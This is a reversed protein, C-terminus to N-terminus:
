QRIALQEGGFLRENGKVVVQMGAELEPGEIGVLLGSYGQVQVPVMKAKGDEEVFVVNQGFKVVLADRPVLLSERRSSSPLLARAEMGEVLKNPNKLRVKVSFTRTAIDGKPVFSLFKGKLKLEGAAVEIQRGEQLYQLVEAPVDVIVDVESDDAVLAVVGGDDVWEGKEANKQIVLADFPARIIKKKKELLLKDLSAKISMARNQLIKTKFYYEDYSSESVSGEKYLPERRKLEKEGQQLEVLVLEYDARTGNIITDLIESELSVLPEDKKIRYGEEFFVKEVVGEVEAAVSSKRAYYVTGVFELMPEAEGKAIEVVEVLSPPKAPKNEAAKEKEAAPSTSNLLLFVALCFPFLRSITKM